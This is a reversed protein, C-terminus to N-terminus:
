GALTFRDGYVSWTLPTSLDLNGAELFVRQATDVRSTDSHAQETRMETVRADLYARLWLLEDGGQAPTTAMRLAASRVARMGSVGHMVAADHYVFQGLARLGDAKALTVAPTFYQRDREDEQAQQFVPDAAAVKWDRTFTPDLGAHSDSGDVAQLAPLYGALVNAPKRRTYEQVLALMDSTGSCFGVIGATYGRGDGIDEIYGFQGRWDVSSNEASAVLQMAIQKMRPDDLAAAVPPPGSPARVPTARGSGFVQVEALSCGLPTSRRTCLVRVYRGTGTLRKHDDIGGDGSRTAALTTWSAGDTSLQVRYATAYAASWVLRVRRVPQAGGLDVRLWQSGPAEAAAWRTKSVGDVANAAAYGGGASSSADIPRRASILADTAADANVTIVLPVTLVTAVAGALAATRGRLGM